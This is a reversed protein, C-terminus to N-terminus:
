KICNKWINENKPPPATIIIKNNKVPHIFEIKRAHLCIGGNKNTRPFGYKIDGKIPSGIKSLQSRIQHHRGSILTIEYLYYNDLKQILRYKLESKLFGTKEKKSAFSKNLARNKKLFHILKGQIPNIQNKVIAWYKKVIEKERFIKTMRSLSKSTKSLIVLGSTPRDIRHPLGLYVEGPKNYEIKIYKKTLDLLTTDGTRDGQVPIRSPKNIIILHNDEYLIWNKM